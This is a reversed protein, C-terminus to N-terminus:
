VRCAFGGVSIVINGQLVQLNRFIRSERYVSFNRVERFLFSRLPRFKSRNGSASRFPSRRLYVLPLVPKGANNQTQSRVPIDRLCEVPYVLFKKGVTVQFRDLHPLFFSVFNCLRECFERILELPRPFVPSRNDGASGANFAQNREALPYSAHITNGAFCLSRHGSTIGLGLWLLRREPNM